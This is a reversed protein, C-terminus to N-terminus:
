GPSGPNARPVLKWKPHIVSDPTPTIVYCDVTAERGIRQAHERIVIQLGRCENETPKLYVKPEPDGQFAVVLAWAMM